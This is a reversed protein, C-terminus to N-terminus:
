GLTGYIVFYLDVLDQVLAKETMDAETLISLRVYNGREVGAGALQKIDV